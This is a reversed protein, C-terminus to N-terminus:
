FTGCRNILFQVLLAVPRGTAKKEKGSKWATGAIDLHAWKFKKTFRALFCAATISKGGDSGVNAVDAINSDIQEQYDDWLPLSWVRDHSQKGAAELDAALCEDNSMLGTAVGGLAVIIAGTLTAMDIVLEPNFRESYTLADALILRGEADTNLIEITQGSLSTVIDGPKIATGSPLNETLPTIGVVNIPLNLQKVAQMLAYVSAAGGMDFKMEEMGLSPKICLGGADFTVGKGVWVIPKRKEEAGMYELVVFYPPQESGQAVALFAGMGENVIAKKDLVTVTLGVAEGLKEAQEAMYAPTCINAPTNALDKALNKANSIALAQTLANEVATLDMEAAVDFVMEKPQQTNAKKTKFQDFTYFCDEICEVTYRVQAAFALDEVALHTLCYTIKELPKGKLTSAICCVIKRFDAFKISEEGCYVLLVRTSAIGPLSYLLLTNGIEEVLDGKALIARIAGQSAEDLQAAAKCLKGAKFVGVVLCDSTEKVPEIAQITYRM